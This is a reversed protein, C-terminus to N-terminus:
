RMIFGSKLKWCVLPAEKTLALIEKTRGIGKRVKDKINTEISGLKYIKDGLYKDCSVEHMVSDHVRLDPCSKNPKGMHIKHCKTKNLSLTEFEM